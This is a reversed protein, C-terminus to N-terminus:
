QNLVVALTHACPYVACSTHLATLSKKAREMTRTFFSFNLSTQATNKHHLTATFLGRGRTRTHIHTHTHTHAHTHTLTHSPTHTRTHNTPTHSDVKQSFASVVWTVHRSSPGRSRTKIERRRSSRGHGHSQTEFSDRIRDRPRSRHMTDCVHIIKATRERRAM